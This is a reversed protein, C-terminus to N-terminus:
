SHLRLSGAPAPACRRTPPCDGGRVLSRSALWAASATAHLAVRLRAAGRLRAIVVGFSVGVPLGHASATAHLAGRLRAIVAGSSVGAPLGHAFATAHLAVRLRVVGNGILLSRGIASGRM